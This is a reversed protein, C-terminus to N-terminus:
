PRSPRWCARLCGCGAKIPMLSSVRCRITRAPSSWRPPVGHRSIFRFETRGLAISTARYLAPLALPFSFRGTRGRAPSK